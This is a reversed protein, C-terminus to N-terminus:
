GLEAVVTSCHQQDHTCCWRLGDGTLVPYLSAFETEIRCQGGVAEATAQLFAAVRELEQLEVGTRELLSGLERFQENKDM